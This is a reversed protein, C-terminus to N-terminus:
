NLQRQTQKRLDEAEEMAKKYPATNTFKLVTFYKIDGVQLSSLSISTTNGEWECTTYVYRTNKPKSPEGFKLNLIQHLKSFQKMKHDSFQFEVSILANDKFYYVIQRVKQGEFTINDSINNFVKCNPFYRTLYIDNVLKVDKQEVEKITSGWKVGEPNDPENPYTSADVTSLSITFAVTIILMLLYKPM